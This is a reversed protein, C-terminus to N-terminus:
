EGRCLDRVSALELVFGAVAESAFRDGQAEVAEFRGQQIRWARMQGSEPDIVWYERVGFRDYADRKTILDLPKSDPSLVELIVAPPKEAEGTRAASYPRHICM